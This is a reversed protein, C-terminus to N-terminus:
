DLTGLFDLKGVEVGSHRLIDYATATHFYFNPMSFQLLYNSGTFTREQGRIKRTVHRAEAGDIQSPAFSRLYELTKDVRAILDALTKENDEWAPPESGTLRAITGRAMDSAIQVQGSLPLMDPYLRANVFVADDIKKAQAHAAAKELIARLNTLGKAFVPVSAQHMTIAM